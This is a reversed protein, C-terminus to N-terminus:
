GAARLTVPVKQVKGDRNVTMTLVDGLKAKAVHENVDAVSTFQVDRASAPSLSSGM